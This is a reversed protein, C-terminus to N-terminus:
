KSIIVILYNIIQKKKNRYQINATELNKDIIIITQDDITKINSNSIKKTICYINM